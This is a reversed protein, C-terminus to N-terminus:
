IQIACNRHNRVWDAAPLRLCALGAPGSGLGGRDRVASCKKYSSLGGERKYNLPQMDPTNGSVQIHKGTELSLM